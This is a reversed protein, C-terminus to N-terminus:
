SILPFKLCHSICSVKVSVDNDHFIVSNHDTLTGWM